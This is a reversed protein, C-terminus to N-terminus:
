TRRSPAPIGRYDGCNAEGVDLRNWTLADCTFLTRIFFAGRIDRKRGFVSTMTEHSMM